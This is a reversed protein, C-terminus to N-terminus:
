AKARLRTAASTMPVREDTAQGDWGRRVWGYSPDDSFAMSREEAPGALVNLCYLDFGPAAASPGHYGRPTLVVDGQGVSETLDISGDSTYLRHLGFGAGM